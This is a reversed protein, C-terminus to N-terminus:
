RLGFLRCITRLLAIRFGGNGGNGAPTAPNSSANGGRAGAGAQLLCDIIATQTGLKNYIASRGDLGNNDSDVETSDACTITLGVLRAVVWNTISVAAERELLTIAPANIFGNKLISNGWMFVLGFLSRNNMDISISDQNIILNATIDECFIYNGSQNLEMTGNVVNAQTLPIPSCLNNIANLVTSQSSAIDEQVTQCCEDLAPSRYITQTAKQQSLRSNATIVPQMMYCLTLLLAICSSLQTLRSM